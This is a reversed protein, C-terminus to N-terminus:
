IVGTDGRKSTMYAMPILQAKFFLCPSGNRQVQELAL